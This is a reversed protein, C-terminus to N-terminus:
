ITNEAEILNALIRELDKELRAQEAKTFTAFFLENMQRSVESYASELRRNKETREILMVRRDHPSSVRRILEAEELRDLMSTLTSKELQTKESLERIPIRDNQWLM